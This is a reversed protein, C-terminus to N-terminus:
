YVRVNDFARRSGVPATKRANGKRTTRRMMTSKAPGKHDGKTDDYALRAGHRAGKRKNGKHTHPMNLRLLIIDVGSKLCDSKSRMAGATWWLM